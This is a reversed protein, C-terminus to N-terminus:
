PHTGQLIALCAAPVHLICVYMRYVALNHADLGGGLAGAQGVLQSSWQKQGVWIEGETVRHTATKGRQAKAEKEEGIDHPRDAGSPRAYRGPHRSSWSPSLCRGTSLM